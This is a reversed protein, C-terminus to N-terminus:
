GRYQGIRREGDWLFRRQIRIISECVMELAKFFSLYYLPLSTFVSKILCIRGAMSLFRGKWASLKTNLKEIIMEWYKKRRPNGGIELGLYKFPIKMLTCHLSNAYVELTQEGVNIGTLKSKHFNVKLGSALEFCRLIAKITIVNSYLDECFFITDDSHYLFLSCSKM